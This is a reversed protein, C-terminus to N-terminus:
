EHVSSYTCAPSSYFHVKYCALKMDRLEKICGDAITKVDEWRRLGLGRPLTLVAWKQSPCQEIQISNNGPKPADQYKVPLVFEMTRNALSPNNTVLVPVTMDLRRHQDNAPSEFVGIYSALFGFANGTYNGSIEIRATVGWIWISEPLAYLWAHASSM